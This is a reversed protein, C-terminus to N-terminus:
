NEKNSQSLECYNKLNSLSSTLNKQMLNRMILDILNGIIPLRKYHFELILDTGGNNEELKFFSTAQLLMFSNNAIEAYEYKEDNKASHVTELEISGSELECKHISGIHPIENKNNIIKKLGTTWEKRMDLNIITEYIFKSPANIIQNIVIPRKFKHFNTKQEVAPILEKLPSLLIYDYDIEGVHEYLTSGSESKNWDFHKSYNKDKQSILYKESLLIYEDSKINNKLLRHAIIVDKGVLKEHDKIKSISIEGSHALFKITLNIATSCAGCHCIRDREIVKLQKHFNMFMNKVQAALEAASPSIGFRYFLVADGEIESVTLGLSNSDIIVEILERIIHQSHSLETESVFKTFGSIDPIFILATQSQNNAM